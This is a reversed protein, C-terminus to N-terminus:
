EIVPKHAKTHGALKAYIKRVFRDLKGARCYTHLMKHHNKICETCNGKNPCTLNPCMAEKAM